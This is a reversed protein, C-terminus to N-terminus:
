QLLQEFGEARLSFQDRVGVTAYVTDDQMVFVAEAGVFNRLLAEGEAREMAMLTTALVTAELASRAVVTVAKIGCDVPAMTTPDIIAPYTRKNITVSGRHTGVTSVAQDKIAVVGLTGDGDPHPIQYTFWGGDPREGIAVAEDGMLFYASSVNYDEAVSAAQDASYARILGELTLGTGEAIGAKMDAYHISLGGIGPDDALNRVLAENVEGNPIGYARRANADCVSFRGYTKDYYVLAMHLLYVTAPDVTILSGASENIREVDCGPYGQVIHDISTVRAGSADLANQADLGYARFFYTTGDKAVRTAVAEYPPNMRQHAMVAGLAITSALLICIPIIFRKKLPIM